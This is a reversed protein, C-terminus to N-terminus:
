DPSRLEPRPVLDHVTVGSTANKYREFLAQAKARGLVKEVAAFPTGAEDFAKRSAALWLSIRNGSGLASFFAIRSLPYNAAKLAASIEKTATEYEDSDVHEVTMQMHGATYENLDNDKGRFDLDTERSWV